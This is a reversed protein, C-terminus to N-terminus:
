VLLLNEYADTSTRDGSYFKNKGVLSEKFSEINDM